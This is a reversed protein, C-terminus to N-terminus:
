PKRVLRCRVMSTLYERTLRNHLWRAARIPIAEFSAFRFPSRAVLRRFRGITMRNLGGEVEAFRTAGDDRYDGRWRCLARETFLLHAWPFVSFAHGGRPHLWPPGFTVLVAGGPRLMGDMADLIAPPDAFHEFADICLIRDARVDTATTFTCLHAVHARAAANAAAQLAAPVIDLGIVRAAGHRAAEIADAGCRCGFDIVVRDALEQWIGAGWYAELKSPTPESRASLRMRWTVPPSFKRLVRYGLEGGLLM